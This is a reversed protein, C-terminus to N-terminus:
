VGAGGAAYGGSDARFREPEGGGCPYDGHEQRRYASFGVRRNGAPDPGCGCPCVLSSGSRGIQGTLHVLCILRHYRAAPDAARSNVLGPPHQGFSAVSCVSLLPTFMRVIRRM